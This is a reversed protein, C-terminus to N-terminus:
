PEVGNEHQESLERELTSIRHELSSIHACADHCLKRWGPAQGAAELLRHKINMPHASPPLAFTFNNIHAASVYGNACKGFLISKGSDEIVVAEGNCMMATGKRVPFGEIWCLPPPIISLDIAPPEDWAFDDPRAAAWWIANEGPKADSPVITRWNKQSIWWVKDGVKLPRGHLTFETM